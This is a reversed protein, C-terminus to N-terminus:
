GSSCGRETRRRCYTAYGQQKFFSTIEIIINQFISVITPQDSKTRPNHSSVTNISIIDGEGTTRDNQASNSQNFNENLLIDVAHPAYVFEQLKIFSAEMSLLM